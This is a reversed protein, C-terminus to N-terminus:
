INVDLMICGAVSGSYRLPSWEGLYMLGKPTKYTKNSRLENCYSTIASEYRRKFVSSVQLFFCVNRYCRFVTIWLQIRVVCAICFKM